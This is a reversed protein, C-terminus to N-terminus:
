IDFESEMDKLEKRIRKLRELVQIRRTEEDKNQALIQRAGDLTLGREKVLNYVVAIDEVDKRSYLRSGGDTKKPQIIEFEKEWYRLLSTNVGFHSAVEKISYYLKETDTFNIKGM